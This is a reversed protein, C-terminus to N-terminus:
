PPEPPAQRPHQAQAAAATYAALRQEILRLIRDMLENIRQDKEALMDKLQKDKAPIHIFMLWSLVGGLLGAGVWGAQPGLLPPAETLVLLLAAIVGALGPDM